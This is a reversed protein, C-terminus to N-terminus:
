KCVTEDSISFLNFASIIESERSNKLSCVKTTQKKSTVLAQGSVYNIDSKEAGSQYNASILTYAGQSLRYVYLSTSDSDSNKLEIINEGRSSTKKLVTLHVCKDDPRSGLKCFNAQIGLIQKGDMNIQLGTPRDSGKTDTLWIISDKKENNNLDFNTEKLPISQALVSTSFGLLCLTIKKM